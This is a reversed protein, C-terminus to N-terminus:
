LSGRARVVQGIRTTVRGAPAEKLDPMTGRGRVFGGPGSRYYLSPKIDLPRVGNVGLDIVQLDSTIFQRRAAEESFDMQVTFDAWIEFLWGDYAATGGANNGVRAVDIAAYGIDFDNNTVAGKDEVDDVYLHATPVAAQNDWSCLLHKWRGDVTVGTASSVSFALGGATRIGDVTIKNDAEQVIAIGGTLFGLLAQETLDERPNWLISLSGVRGDSFSPAEAVATQIYSSGDFRM